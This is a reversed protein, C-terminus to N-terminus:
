SVVAKSTGDFKICILANSVDRFRVYLEGNSTCSLSFSMEGVALDTGAVNATKAPFILHGDSTASIGFPENKRDIAMTDEIFLFLRVVRIEGLQGGGLEIAQNICRDITYAM